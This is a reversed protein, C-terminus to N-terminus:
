RVRAIGLVGLAPRDLRSGAVAAGAPRRVLHAFAAVRSRDRLDVIRIGPRELLRTGAGPMIAISPGGDRGVRSSRRRVRLRWAWLRALRFPHSFAGAASRVGGGARWDDWARSVRWRAFQRPSWSPRDAYRLAVRTQWERMEARGTSLQQDHMHYIVTVDRCVVGTGHELCRLLLDFDECFPVDEDYGGAALVVDRRFMVGSGPVPNEPFVVDAPGSLELDSRGPAGHLRDRAPDPGCRLATGAVVVHSGRRPWLAALHGPLWEDDSDLVAIWPHTAAAVGSNRAASEGSNVAHRVVRVGLEAAVAATDDTSADDVVVIEAPQAPRQGLASVIARRIMDGRNYAAIVVSVPLADAGGVTPAVSVHDPGM